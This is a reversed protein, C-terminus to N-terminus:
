TATFSRTCSLRTLKKIVVVGVYIECFLIMEQWMKLYDLKVCHMMHELLLLIIRMRQIQGRFWWTCM